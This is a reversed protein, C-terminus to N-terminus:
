RDPRADDADLMLVCAEVPYSFAVSLPSRRKIGPWRDLGSGDILKGGLNMMRDVEPQYNLSGTLTPADLWGPRGRGAEYLALLGGLKVFHEDLVYNVCAKRARGDVVVVDCVTDLAEVYDQFEALTGDADSTRHSPTRLKLIVTCGAMQSATLEIHVDYAVVSGDAMMSAPQSRLAVAIHHRVGYGIVANLVQEYWDQKHEVGIYTGGQKLLNRIHWMSSVGTGYEFIVPRSIRSYCDVVQEWVDPSSWPFQEELPELSTPKRHILFWLASRISQATSLIPAPVNKRIAYKLRIPWEHRM